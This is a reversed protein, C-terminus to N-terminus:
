FKWEAFHKYESVLREINEILLLSFSRLVRREFERSFIQRDIFSFSDIYLGKLQKVLRLPFSTCIVNKVQQCVSDPDRLSTLESSHCSTQNSIEGGRVVIVAYNHGREIVSVLLTHDDNLALFHEREQFNVVDRRLELTLSKILSPMLGIYVLSEISENSTLITRFRSWFRQPRPFGLVLTPSGM